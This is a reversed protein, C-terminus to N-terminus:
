LVVTKTQGHTASRSRFGKVFDLAPKLKPLTIKKGAQTMDAKFAPALARQILQQKTKEEAAKERAEGRAEEQSKRKLEKELRLAEENAKKRAEQEEKEKMERDKKTKEDETVQKAATKLKEMTVWPRSNQKKVIADFADDAIGPRMTKNQSCLYVLRSVYVAAFVKLRKVPPGICVGAKLLKDIGFEQTSVVDYDKLSAVTVGLGGENESKEITEGDCWGYEEEIVAGLEKKRQCSEPYWPMRAYPDNKITDIRDKVTV